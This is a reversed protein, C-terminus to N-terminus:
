HLCVRFTIYNVAKSVKVDVSFLGRNIEVTCSLLTLMVRVRTCAISSGWEVTTSKCV